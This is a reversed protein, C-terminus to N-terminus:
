AGGKVIAGFDALVRAHNRLLGLLNLRNRRVEADEAMVLVSREGDFFEVVVPAIAALAAVLRDYNRSERAARTEPVMAALAEYFDAETPQEFLQSRVVQEPELTETDLDGQRALRASRNVTEYIEDLKGNGRIEQLFTARALTDPLDALARDRYGADGEGLVANVLDYDIHREEQLLTRARKDFFDALRDYLEAPADPYGQRFDDIADRLLRDFDLPLRAEWIISAIANAARRLAFPDSSGSPVMGLGFISVLTDLKDAIAIIQGTQTQPLADGAGKPLYHEYIATAVAEPEGCALAYKQGAIGELEPFEYVMQTVLDAKCLQAARRVWALKKGKLKLQTAIRDAIASLRKVKEAMSGLKEQFTMGELQPLYAELPQKRDADYFFRGDALRARIVRENGAAIARAAEPAGNSVAVFYPLLRDGKLVPFYRQHVVMVTEIAEPPLELFAEDFRGAIAGPWEVLNTVEALLEPLIKATGGVAAAAERVQTEVIQRRRELEVIVGAAGLTEAYRDARDIEVPEPHLVRHGRSYRDSQLTESGNAITVPLVRDDWLVVLSRIPRSFRLDGDGWCMFRRGELNQIWQPVFEALLEPTARGPIKKSAFVFAGKETERTELASADVGQKRAFGLAAKTPKGDKYAAAAPPGKVEEERDPQRDPLGRVCVALRRPTGCVVIAEPALLAEALAIPVRERWQAIARDIFDAPLEETGIELLFTAM